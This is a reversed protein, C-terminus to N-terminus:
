FEFKLSNSLQQILISSYDCAKSLDLCHLRLIRQVPLGMKAGWRLTDGWRFFDKAGRVRSTLHEETEWIM